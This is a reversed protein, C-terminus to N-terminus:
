AAATVSSCPLHLDMLILLFMSKAEAASAPKTAPDVGVKLAWSAGGAFFAGFGFFSTWEQAPFFEHLPLPPQLLLSLPQL